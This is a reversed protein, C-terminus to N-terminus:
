NLGSIFNAVAEIELASMRAVVGRMMQTEGDNTRLNNQFNNLQKVLYETKQGSLAPYGAPFNGMGSPSHCGTCAPVGNELNGSRFIVEGLDLFDEPNLAFPISELPQAGELQKPQSAFYAALDMMDQDSLIATFPAMEPVVRAGSKIESIQKYLYAEGQGGINPYLPLIGKGNFGHCASCITAKGQGAAADGSQALIPAAATLALIFLSYLSLKM